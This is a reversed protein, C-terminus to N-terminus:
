RICFEDIVFWHGIDLTVNLTDVVLVATASDWELRLSYPQADGPSSGATWRTANCQYESRNPWPM